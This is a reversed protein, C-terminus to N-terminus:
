FILTLRKPKKGFNFSHFFPVQNSLYPTTNQSFDTLLAKVCFAPQAKSFALSEEHKATRNPGKYKIFSSGSKHLAHNEVAVYEM